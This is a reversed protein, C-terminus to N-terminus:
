DGLWWFLTFAAILFAAAVAVVDFIVPDVGVGASRCSNGGHRYATQALSLPSECVM